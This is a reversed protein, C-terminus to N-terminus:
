QVTVQAGAGISEPAMQGPQSQEAPTAPMGVGPMPEAPRENRPQGDIGGGAQPPALESESLPLGAAVMAQQMNDGRQDLIITMTDQRTLADIETELPERKIREQEAQWDPFRHMLITQKSIMGLQYNRNDAEDQAFQEAKDTSKFSVIIDQDQLDEPRITVTKKAELSAGKALQRAPLTCPVGLEKLIELALTFKEKWADAINRLPPELFSSAPKQQVSRDHGSTADSSGSPSISQPYGYQLLRDQVIEWARIVQQQDPVAIPEWRFGDRPPPLTDSTLDFRIVPMQESPQQVISIIDAARRMESVEQWMNRGTQLAGSDILTGLLNEMEVIPYLNGILPRFMLHPERDPGIHGPVLSYNPRGAWNPRYDLMLTDDKTGVIDYIYEETELHYVKCLKDYTGTQAYEEMTESTLLLARPDDELDPYAAIIDSIKKDGIECFADLDPEWACADLDPTVDVFPNSSFAPSADEGRELKERIAARMEDKDKIHKGALLQRIGDAFDLRSIGCGYRTAQGIRRRDPAYFRNSQRRKFDFFLANLFDETNSAGKLASPTDDRAIVSIEIDAGDLYNDYLQAHHELAPSRWELITSIGLINVPKERTLLLKREENRLRWEAFGPQDWMKQCIRRVQDATYPEVNPM